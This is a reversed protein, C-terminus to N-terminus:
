VQKGGMRNRSVRILSREQFEYMAKRFDAADLIRLRGHIKLHLFVLM